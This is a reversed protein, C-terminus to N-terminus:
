GKSSQRETKALGDDSRRRLETFQAPEWPRVALIMTTASRMPHGLAKDEQAMSDFEEAVKQLRQQMLENSRRSLAGFAVIRSEGERSFSTEFFQHQMREEFFRQIPGDKRWAFNRALRVKIVNDPLLDIIRMRDLRVLLRVLEMRSIRFTDLIDAATWFSIALIGVLLLKPENVLVKEQEETLQAIRAEAAHMLELLDTLEIKMLRCIQDVRELSPNKQSFLRKVSSESLRLARAVHAYTLGRQRLGKKLTDVLLSAQSM